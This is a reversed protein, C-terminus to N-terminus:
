SLKAGEMLQKLRGFFVGSGVLTNIKPSVIFTSLNRSIRDQIINLLTQAHFDKFQIYDLGSVILVKAQSLWIQEYDFSDSIEKM